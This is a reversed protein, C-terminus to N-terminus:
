FPAELVAPVDWGQLARAVILAPSNPATAAVISGILFLAVSVLYVLQASFYKYLKGVNALFHRGPPFLRKWVM